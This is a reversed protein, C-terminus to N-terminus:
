TRRLPVYWREYTVEDDYEGAPMQQVKLWQRDLLAGLCEALHFTDVPILRIRARIRDFTPDTGGLWLSEVIFYCYDLDDETM